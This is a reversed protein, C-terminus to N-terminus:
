KATKKAPAAAKKKWESFSTRPKRAPVAGTKLEYSVLHKVKNLMGRICNNDTVSNCDGVRNLGLSKLVRRQNENSQATSRRQTIVIHGSM